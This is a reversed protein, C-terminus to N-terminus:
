RKKCYEIWQQELGAIDTEYLKRLAAEIAAVDNRRVAGVAHVFELFRAKHDKSERLFEILLAAQEYQKGAASDGSVDEKKASFLLSRTAMFEKLPTHKGNKVARAAANRENDRSSMYEAVGEQFWSGGGRLRLRNAFIQHTAEHIHVPDNPAEYWTAYYDRFAHGKSQRAQDLTAGTVKVMFDFYEDPTRFLFVPMLRFSPLEEFPFVKRIATYCEEMKEAFAKGGSSNTLILYHATRLPKEYKKHTPEPTDRLWRARAEEDTWATELTKGAYVIGKELFAELQELETKAPAPQADVSVLWVEQELLGALMWRAGVKRTGQQLPGHARAAYALIGYPGAQVTSAEPRFVPAGPEEDDRANELALELGDEPEELELESRSLLFLQIDVKSGGLRGVWRGKLQEGPEPLKALEQLTPLVLTLGHEPFTEAGAPPPARPPAKKQSLAPPPLLGVAAACAAAIWLRRFPRAHASM